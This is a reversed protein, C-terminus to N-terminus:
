TLPPLPPPLGVEVGVNQDREHAEDVLGQHPLQGWLPALVAEGHQLRDALKRQLPQFCVSLALGRSRRM